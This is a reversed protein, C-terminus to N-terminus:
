GIVAEDDADGAREDLSELDRVYAEVAARHHEPVLVPVYRPEDAWTRTM